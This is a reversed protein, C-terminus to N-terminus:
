DGPEFLWGPILPFWCLLDVFGMFSFAYSARHAAEVDIEGAEDVEPTAWLCLAYELAFVVGCLPVAWRDGAAFDSHMEEMSLGVSMVASILIAAFLVSRVLLGV